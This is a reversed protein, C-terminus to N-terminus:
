SWAACSPEHFRLDKSGCDCKDRIWAFEPDEQAEGEPIPTGWLSGDVSTATDVTPPAETSPAPLTWGADLYALMKEASFSVMMDRTIVGAPPISTLPFEEAPKVMPTYWGLSHLARVAADPLVALMEPTIQRSSAPTSPLAQPRQRVVTPVELDTAFEPVLGPRTTGRIYAQIYANDWHKHNITVARGRKNAQRYVYMKFLAPGKSVHFHEMSVRYLQGDLLQDWWWAPLHVPERVRVEKTDPGSSM